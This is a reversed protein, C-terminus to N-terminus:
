PQLELLKSARKDGKDAMGELTKWLWAEVEPANTKRQIIDNLREWRNPNLSEGYGQILLVLDEPEGKQIVARALVDAEPLPSRAVIHLGNWADVSGSLITERAWKLVEADGLSALAFALNHRARYRRDLMRRLIETAEKAPHRVFWAALRSAEQVDASRLAALMAETDKEDAMQVLVPTLAARKYKDKIQPYAALLVKALDKSRTREVYTSVASTHEVWQGSRVLDTFLPAAEPHKGWAFAWLVKNRTEESGGTYLALLDQYPKVPSTSEFHKEIDEVLGAPYTVPDQGSRAKAQLKRLRAKETEYNDLSSIRIYHRVAIAWPSRSGGVEENIRSFPPGSINWGDETKNVFILFKKGVQYDHANCAGTYAGPRAARFDKEDGKGLYSEMGGETLTGAPFDGKLVELVRLTFTGKARHFFDAEVLLIADTEKVLEYNSPILFGLGVSCARSPAPSVLLGLILLLLLLVPNVNKSLRM